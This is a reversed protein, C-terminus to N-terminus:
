QKDMNGTNGHESAEQNARAYAQYQYFTAQPVKSIHMWANMCVNIGEVTVIRRGRAYRHVSRHVKTKLYARFKFTSQNYM